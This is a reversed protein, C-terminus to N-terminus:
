SAIRRQQHQHSAEAIPTRQATDKTAMAASGTLASQQLGLEGGPSPEPHRQDASRGANVQTTGLAALAVDPEICLQAADLPSASEWGARDITANSGSTPNLRLSLLRRPSGM